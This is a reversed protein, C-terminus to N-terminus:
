RNLHHGLAPAFCQTVSWHLWEPQRIWMAGLISGIGHHLKTLIVPEPRQKVDHTKLGLQFMGLLRADESHNRTQRLGFEGPEATQM